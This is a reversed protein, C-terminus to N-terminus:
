VGVTLWGSYDMKLTPSTSGNDPPLGFSVPFLLAIVINFVVTIVLVVLCVKALVITRIPIWVPISRFAPSIFQPHSPLTQQRWLEKGLQLETDSNSTLNNSASTSGLTNSPAISTSLTSLRGPMSTMPLEDKSPKSRTYRRLTQIWNGSPSFEETQEYMSAEPDPVDEDLFAELAAAEGDTILEHRTPEPTTPEADTESHFSEHSASSISQLAVDPGLNSKRKSKRRHIITTGNEDQVEGDNEDDFQVVVKMTLKRKVASDSPKRKSDDVTTNSTGIPEEITVKARKSKRSDQSSTDFGATQSPVTLSNSSNEVPINLRDKSDGSYPESTAEVEDAEEGKRVNYLDIFKHISKSSWHISKLLLKQKTTLFRSENYDKRFQLCRLYILIPVVFNATSVFVLSTWNIFAIQAPTSVLLPFSILWPLVYSFFFATWQGTLQNQVLNNRAILFYVPIAPLLLLLSFLYTTIKSLMRVGDPGSDRLLQLSDSNIGRFAYSGAFGFIVYITAILTTSTWVTGQVNVDKKKINVWSPVFAAFAVNQIVIGTITALGIATPPSASLNSLSATKSFFCAVIWEFIIVLMTFFTGIQIGINDDLNLFALPLIFVFTLLLGVTIITPHEFATVSGEPIKQPCALVLGNKIMVGCGVHFLEGVIADLQQGCVVISQIAQSQLAAYLFFQGVVHTWPGFYFNILTAFEVTGQFHKNGPIAQMAEVIFLVSFASLVTFIIFLITPIIWGTSSYLQPVFPVGPGAMANCLLAIGGLLGVTKTKMLRNITTKRMMRDM